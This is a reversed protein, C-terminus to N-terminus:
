RVDDLTLSRWAQMRGDLQTYFDMNTDYLTEYFWKLLLVNVSQKAEHDKSEKMFTTLNKVFYHWTNVYAEYKELNEIGLWKKVKVKSRNEVKCEHTQLFYSFTEDHYYRGLPFLRCIGPRFEYIGCRKEETLFNCGHGGDKIHPLTLLDHLGIELYGENVLEGFSKNLGKSLHYIDYPDIVITDCMSECCYSCNKCGGSDARVMDNAEYLRGDSIEGMMVFREM